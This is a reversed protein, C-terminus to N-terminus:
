VTQRRPATAQEVTKVVVAESHHEAIYASAQRGIREREESSSLLGHLADVAARATGAVVGLGLKAVLKDPDVTLSVVPTGFSWAQLFTNPFGERDSTCLLAAAGAIVDEAEAPSVKGRYEVNPLLRMAEIMREGYGAQSRHTTVGGCVVYRITPTYRAMEILLDLRKPERLMGVWAVYPSRDAHRQISAQTRTISRVINAKSKWRANLEDLQGSHQVFLRDAQALGLAYLPWWRERATLARRPTVDTDFAAAFITQAGAWRAMKVLPGFLHSAGRWYVWDPRVASLYGYWDMLCQGRRIGRYEVGEVTRVEGPPIGDRLGVTVSWGSAALGKALLWQQRESGGVTAADGCAYGYIRDNLFAVKM